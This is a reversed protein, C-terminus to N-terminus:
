CAARVQADRVAACASSLAREHTGDELAAPSYTQAKTLLGHAAALRQRFVELKGLYPGPDTQIAVSARILALLTSTATLASDLLTAPAGSTVPAPDGM